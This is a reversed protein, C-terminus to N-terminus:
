KEIDGLIRVNGRIYHDDGEIEKIREVTKPDYIDDNISVSGRVLSENNRASEQWRIGNIRIEWNEANGKLYFKSRSPSNGWYM